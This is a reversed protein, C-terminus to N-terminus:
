KAGCENMPNSFAFVLRGTRRRSRELAATTASTMASASWGGNLAPSIMKQRGSLGDLMWDAQAGM